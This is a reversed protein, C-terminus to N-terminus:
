QRDSSDLDTHDFYLDAALWLARAYRHFFVPFGVVYILLPPLIVENSYGLAIHLIIYAATMSASTWGYNIYTSGLFYGPEREFKLGCHSCTENMRILGSFLKGEGCQPCLLKLARKRGTRFPVRAM